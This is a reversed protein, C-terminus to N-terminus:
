PRARETTRRAPPPGPRYAPRICCRWYWDGVLDHRVGGDRLVVLVGDEFRLRDGAALFLPSAPEFTYGDDHEFADVLVARSLPTSGDAILRM